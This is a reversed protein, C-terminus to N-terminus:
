SSSTNVESFTPNKDQTETIELKLEKKVLEKISEAEMQSINQSEELSESQAQSISDSKNEVSVNNQLQMITANMSNIQDQMSMIQQKLFTIEKTNVSSANKISVIGPKYVELQKKFSPFEDMNAELTKLRSNFDELTKDDFEIKQESNNSSPEKGLDQFELDQMHNELRGLRLTILTIAQPITMKKNVSLGDPVPQFNTKNQLYQKQQVDAYQGALQGSMQPQNFNASSAISTTTYQQQQPPYSPGARRRQAAAVSRNISMSFNFLNNKFISRM